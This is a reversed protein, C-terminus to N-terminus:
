IKRFVWKLLELYTPKKGYLLIGIRYIRAGAWTVALFGAILLGASLAIEWPAVTFPLRILMIIPSTLPFVSLWFSLSSQPDQIVSTALVISFILPLTVPLVFQQSDAESDVAAGVAGFLAGYILYGFLFYFCFAGILLPFNLTGVADMIEFIESSGAKPGPGASMQNMQELKEAAQPDPSLFASFVSTLTLFLGVWIGFQTLAVAGIGLIKGFMLEFPKVSSIIVEVIRNTKEEIVGRMVQAGYFFIFFYILFSALYGAASAAGMSKEEGGEETELITQISIDAQLSDIFSKTLGTQLLLQDETEKELVRRIRRTVIYSLTKASYLSVKKLEEAKVAPIHLLGASGNSAIRAKATELDDEIYFFKVEESDSFKNFFYGSEDLM